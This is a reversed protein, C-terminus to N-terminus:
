AAIRKITFALRPVQKGIPKLYFMIDLWNKSHNPYKAYSWYFYVRLLRHGYYMKRDDFNFWEGKPCVFLPIVLIAEFGESFGNNLHKWFNFGHKIQGGDTHYVLGLIRKLINKM